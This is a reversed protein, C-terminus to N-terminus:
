IDRRRWRQITYTIDGDTRPPDSADLQFRDRFAPFVTDCDFRGAIDTYYLVACRPDAIAGTYLQGGGVVFISEAGAETAAAVAEDLGPAVIAGDLRDLSRSVVVNIRGALPRYRPPLSDWTRRGMIVANQKGPERTGTTIQKFHAVDGPLRPWPLENGRGIGRAVDAAVVCAYSPPTVAVADVGRLM